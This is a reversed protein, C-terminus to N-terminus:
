RRRARPVNQETLFQAFARADYALDWGWRTFSIVKPRLINERNKEAMVVGVVDRGAMVEGRSYKLAGDFEGIKRVGRWFYDVFYTRGQVVFRVQLEPVEFGLEEFRVRSLSEGANASLGNAFTIAREAARRGVRPQVADLETLLVDKTIPPSGHLGTRKERQRRVAEQHLVHDVMTVGILFSSGVAMDVVTRTLSTVTVGAITVPNLDGRNRHSTLLRHSSGGAADPCLAHVTAPWPGILPLGHMVAASHHSLVLETTAEAATARVCLRYREDPRADTWHKGLVYWGRRVRALEGRLTLRHVTYTTMGSARLAEASILGNRFVGYSDLIETM